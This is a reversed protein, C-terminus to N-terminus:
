GDLANAPVGSNPRLKIRLLRSANRGLMRRRREIPLSHPVSKYPSDFDWHPYDSSFM